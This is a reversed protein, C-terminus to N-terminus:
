IGEPFKLVEEYSFIPGDLCVYKDGCTCHQCKGVGCRMRRELSIYIDKNNFGLKKLKEIVFRYMIPPGCLIAVSNDAFVTKETILNTVMGINGQWNKYSKEVTLIIESFKECASLEKQFFIGEPFRAGYLLQIEGFKYSNKSLYDMLAKIPVIGTGGAVMIINKKRWSEIPFGNGYPGRIEVPSEKKLNTIKETLGGVNRVLIQLKGSNCAPQMIGFPAEGYGIISLMFFQGPNFKSFRFNFNLLHTDPTIQENKTLVANNEM